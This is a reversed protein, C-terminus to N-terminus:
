RGRASKVHAGGQDDVPKQGPQQLRQGRAQEVGAGSLALFVGDADVFTEAQGGDGPGGTIQRPGISVLSSM